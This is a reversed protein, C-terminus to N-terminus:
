QVRSVAESWPGVGATNCARVKYFVRVGKPVDDDVFTSKRTTKFYKMEPVTNSDGANAGFGKDWEYYDARSDTTTSVIFGEGDIDDALSPHINLDPASKPSKTKRPKINYELLKVEEGAHFGAALNEIKDALLSTESGVARAEAMKQTQAQRADEVQRDITEIKALAEDVTEMTVTQTTWKAPNKVMGSKLYVLREKPESLYSFM